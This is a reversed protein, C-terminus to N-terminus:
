LVIRGLIKQGIAEVFVDIEQQLSARVSTTDESIKERLQALDEAAKQNIKDVIRKEEEQAAQVRTQKEKLGKERAARVGDTWTNEQEMASEHSDSISKELGDVKEKRKILINRIPKYLIINLIWILFIFNVIQIVVSGDPIVTIGGSAAVSTGALAMLLVVGLLCGRFLGSFRM